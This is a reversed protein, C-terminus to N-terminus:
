RGWIVRIKNNSSGRSHLQYHMILIFLSLSLSLSLLSLSGGDNHLPEPNTYHVNSVM